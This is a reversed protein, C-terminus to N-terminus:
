SFLIAENATTARAVPVWILLTRITAPIELQDQSAGGTQAVEEAEEELQDPPELADPDEATDVKLSLGQTASCSSPMLPQLYLYM